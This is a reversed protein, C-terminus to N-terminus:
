GATIDSASSSMKKEKVHMLVFANFAMGPCESGMSKQAIKMNEAVKATSLSFSMSFYQGYLNNNVSRPIKHTIKTNQAAATISFVFNIYPIGSQKLKLPHVLIGPLSLFM